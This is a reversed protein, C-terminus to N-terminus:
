PFEEVTCGADHRNRKHMLAQHAADNAPLAASGYFIELLDFLVCECEPLEPRRVGLRWCRCQGYKWELAYDCRHLVAHIPSCEGRNHQAWCLHFSQTALPFSLQDLIWHIGKSQAHVSCSTPRLSGGFFSRCRRKEIRPM